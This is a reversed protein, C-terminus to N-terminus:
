SSAATPTSSSACRRAGAPSHRLTYPLPGGPCTPSPRRRWRAAPQVATMRGAAPAPRRREGTEVGDRVALRGNVISTTSASRTARRSRTPRWTPSRRRTSSSSTPSRARACRRRSRAARAPRGAGVHAQRRGDRAAAHRARPRVHRAGPGHQRVDASPAQGRRPDPPRAPPRLRRHLGRDLARGHDDRRRRRGHLRHRDLRRAPRRRACRLRADAPDRTSRARRARGAISGAWDPHSAPTRSGSGPGARTRRSTRGARSAGTSRPRSGTASTSTPSPPSAPTSARPRAAGAAPDHGADDRRGHVPVPRRRRRPGRRPRARPRAVAEAARGWVARSGCKLHSVQLRPATSGPTRPRASRPSRRTSPTSCATPRTACTRRTCGAAGPRRRRWRGRARGRRRAHGPAYILGSSLGIAGADMAADVERVMAQRELDDAARAEAGMVAGRVTGHGVLFAVNPASRRRTSPM